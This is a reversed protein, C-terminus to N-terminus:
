HVQLTSIARLVCLIYIELQGELQTQEFCKWTYGTPFIPNFLYPKYSAHYLVAEAERQLAFMDVTGSAQENMNIHDGVIQSCDSSMGEINKHEGESFENTGAQVQNKRKLGNDGEGEMVSSFRTDSM